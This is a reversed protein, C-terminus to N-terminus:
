LKIQREIDPLNDIFSCLKDKAKTKDSEEIKKYLESIINISNKFEPENNNIYIIALEVNSKFNFKVSKTNSRELEIIEKYAEIPNPSNKSKEFNSELIDFIEEEWKMESFDLDNEYQNQSEDNNKEEM